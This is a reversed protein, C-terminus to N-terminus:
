YASVLFEPKNQLEAFESLKNDAQAQEFSAELEKWKREDEQPDGTSVFLGRDWVEIKLNPACEFLIMDWKGFEARHSSEPRECNLAPHYKEARFKQSSCASLILLTLIFVTKM